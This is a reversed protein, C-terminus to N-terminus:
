CAPVALEFRRFAVSSPKPLRCVRKEAPVCVCLFCCCCCSTQQRLQGHSLELNVYFQRLPSLGRSSRNHLFRTICKPKRRRRGALLVPVTRTWEAEIGTRGLDLQLQGEIKWCCCLAVQRKGKRRDSGPVLFPQEGAASKLNRSEAEMSWICM